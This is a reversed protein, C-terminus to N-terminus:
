LYREVRGEPSGRPHWAPAAPAPAEVADHPGYYDYTRGIRSPLGNLIAGVPEKGIARLSDAAADLQEARTSGVRAVMLVAAALRATVAADSVPLLPPSDLIVIEARRTLRDLLASFRDSGLLESPNPPPAGSTLVELPLEHEHRLVEDEDSVEGLLVNTLGPSSGPRPELGLLRGLGPRRLDADVLVVRHEAQAFALGLNAAILTKGEGQVASTILLSRLGRDITVVRLNTRLRRHAEAEPSNADEVVVLPRRKAGSDHPIRALVLAGAIAETGEEDRIRRDLLDRLGAGGVGLVLGLLAGAALYLGQPPSDPSTPLVAPSTVSIEVPSRAPAPSGQAAPPSGQAAPPSGQAAPSSELTEVFRPFEVAVADAIEKALEPSEDRVTVDILVTEAPVTASIASQISEPTRALGLEQIVAEAVPPSSAIRAYSEARAQSALGGQYVESPTLGPEATASVFLQTHAAYVPERTWAYAGLAATCIVVTTLILVWHARLVRIYQKIEM